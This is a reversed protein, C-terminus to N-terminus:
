DKGELVEDMVESLNINQKPTFLRDVIGVMYFMHDCIVHIIIVSKINWKTQVHGGLYENINLLMLVLIM